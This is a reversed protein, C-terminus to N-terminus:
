MILCVSVYWTLPRRDVDSGKVQAAHNTWKWKSVYDVQCGSKFYKTGWLLVSVWSRPVHHNTIKREMSLPLEKRQLPLMHWMM